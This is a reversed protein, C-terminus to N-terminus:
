CNFYDIYYVKINGYKNLFNLGIEKHNEIEFFSFIVKGNMKYFLCTDFSLKKIKKDEFSFPSIFSYLANKPNIENIKIGSKQFEKKFLKNFKFWYELPYDTFFGDLTYFGHYQAISPSIFFSLTKFNNLNLNLKLQLDEKIKSFNEFEYYDKLMYVGSSRYIKRRKLNHLPIPIEPDYTKYLGTLPESLELDLVSPFYKNIFFYRLGVHNEINLEKKINEKIGPFQLISFVSFVIIIFPNLFRTGIKKYSNGIIFLSICFLSYWCVPLFIDLRTLDLPIGFFNYAIKLQIDLSSILSSLFILFFIILLYLKKELLFNRIQIKKKMLLLTFFGLFTIITILPYHHSIHHTRSSQFFIGIFDLFLKKFNFNILVNWSELRHSVYDDLFVSYISRSEILIYLIFFSFVLVWFKQENQKLYFCKIIHFIFIFLCAAFGGYVLPSLFPYALIALSSIVVEKNNYFNLVGWIFLPLCSVTGLTFMNFKVISFCFATASAYWKSTHSKDLIYNTLLLYMGLYKILRLLISNVVFATPPDFILFLNQALSFDGIHLYNLKYSEIFNPIVYDFDFFFNTQFSRVVWYSFISDLKDHSQEFAHETPFLFVSYILLQLILFFYFPNCFIFNKSKKLFFNEKM